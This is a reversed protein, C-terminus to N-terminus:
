GKGPRGYLWWFETRPYAPQWEFPWVFSGPTWYRRLQNDLAAVRSSIGPDFPSPPTKLKNVLVAIMVRTEVAAPYYPASDTEERELEQLYQSWQRLRAELERQAKQGFYAQKGALAHDFQAIAQALRMRETDALLADRLALLREQRMLYGGLTLQPLGIQITQWLPQSLLYDSM